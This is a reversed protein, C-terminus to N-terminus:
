SSAGRVPPGALKHLLLVKDTATGARLLITDLTQRLLFAANVLIACALAIKVVVLTPMLRQRYLTSAIHRLPPMAAIMSTTVPKEGAVGAGAARRALCAAPRGAARHPDGAGAVRPCPCSRVAGHRSLRGGAM